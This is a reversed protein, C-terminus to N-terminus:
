LCLRLRGPAGESKILGLVRRFATGNGSDGIFAVKLNPDTPIPGPAGPAQARAAGLAIALLATLAGGAIFRPVRGPQRADGRSTIMQPRGRDHYDGPVLFPLGTWGWLSRLFEATATTRGKYPREGALTEPIM